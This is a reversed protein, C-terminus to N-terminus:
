EDLKVNVGKKSLIKINIRDQKEKNNITPLKPVSGVHIHNNASKSSKSPSSAKMPYLKLSM